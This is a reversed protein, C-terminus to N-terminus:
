NEWQVGDFRIGKSQTVQGLLIGKEGVSELVNLVEDLNKESIATVLGVGCNFTKLMESSSIRGNNQIEKFCPQAYKEIYADMSDSLNYGLNENMREINLVGGGTIHSMGNVLDKELLGKVFQWYIKTPTLYKQKEEISAGSNDLVKRVLSFGNSHIGSSSLGVLVDGAKVKDNGLIKQPFVEGVAFGALDYEGESYMDPMEATEGGILACESQLCGEVVGEIIDESVQIDLKGTALYDMFFLPRAGTCLIDNVCMAVLDIGVTNHINCEFALKLKTGVGDTGAALLRDGVEYLCAFGGVGGKVRSGYTGKVKDKIKAVLADGKDIDVGSDKYTLGM